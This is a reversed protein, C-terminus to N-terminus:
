RSLITAQRGPRRQRSPTGGLSSTRYGRETQPGLPKSKYDYEEIRGAVDNWYAVWEQDPKTGEFSKPAYQSALPQNKNGPQEYWRKRVDKDADWRDDGEKNKYPTGGMLRDQWRVDDAEDKYPFEGM